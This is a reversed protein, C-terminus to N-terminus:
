YNEWLIDGGIYLVHKGKKHNGIKDFVIASDSPSLITHGTIYHYDPEQIKGTPPGSPCDFVKKDAVYGGKALESLNPPFKGDHEIAYLRLGLSIEQFNSECGVVEARTRVENIFPTLLLIIIGLIAIIIALETLTFGTSTVNRNMLGSM